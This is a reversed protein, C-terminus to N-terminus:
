DSEHATKGALLALAHPLASLITRLSDEAGAPSGPLNIVLTSRDALDIMGCVGRSLAAFPTRLQSEQRMKEALGPAMRHCVSMTAEPTVDRRALGTGGTTVVLDIREEAARQLTAAIREQEDPVVEVACQSVGSTSLVRAVRPGSADQRTGAFCGDSVTLVLASRGELTEPMKAPYRLLLACCAASFGRFHSFLLVRAEGCDPRGREPPARTGSLM